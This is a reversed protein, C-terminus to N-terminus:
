EKNLLDALKHSEYRELQEATFKAKKKELWRELLGYEALYEILDLVNDEKFLIEPTKKYAEEFLENDKQRIAKEYFFVDYKTSLSIRRIILLMQVAIGLTAFILIYTSVNRPVDAIVTVIDGLILVIGVILLTNSIKITPKPAKVKLLHPLLRAVVSLLIYFIATGTNIM